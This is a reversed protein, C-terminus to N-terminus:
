AKTTANKSKSWDSYYKTGSITTYTRIRVYYKKSGKLGTVKKSTNKYGSVTVTKKNKTFKSNTALQIQYGTIRKKSMKAAQKTWKVTIAKSAATLTGLKTGKPNIKFSVNKTGVYNGTMKVTVKYKGVNKRGKAYTVTYNAKDVATTGDKVTVTPKKAKGDYTYAKQSLTVKPTIKKPSITFTKEVTGTYEGKGKIIVTAEGANINNKYSLTYDTGSKLTVEGNKVTPKPKIASGTYTKATVDGVMEETIRTKPQTGEPYTYRYRIYKGSNESIEAKTGNVYIEVDDSIEYGDLKTLEGCYSYLYMGKEITSWYNNWESDETEKYEFQNVWYSYNEAKMGDRQEDGCWTKVKIGSPLHAPDGVVMEPLTVEVKSVSPIEQYDYIVFDENEMSCLWCSWGYYTADLSAHIKYKGYPLGFKYFLSRLNCTPDDSSDSWGTTVENGDMDYVIVYTDFYNIGPTECTVDTNFILTDGNLEPTETTRTFPGHGAESWVVDSPSYGAKTAQVTFYYNEDTYTMRGIFEKWETSGDTIVRDYYEVHYPNGASDEEYYKVVYKVGEVGPIPDWKATSGEWRLNTPNPLKGLDEGIAIFTFGNADAIIQATSGIIGKITVNVSGEFVNDDIACEPNDIQVTLPNDGRYGFASYLIKEVNEPIIVERLNLNTMSIGGIAIVSSPVTFTEGPKANPYKHLRSGLYEPENGNYDYIKEYLVGDISEYYESEPDVYISELDSNDIFGGTNIYSVSKPFSISSALLTSRQYSISEVGEEIIVEGFTCWDTAYDVLYLGEGRLVLRDLTTMEIANASIKIVGDPIAYETQGPKKVFKYLITGDKSFLSGDIAKYYESDAAVTFGDGEMECDEFARSGISEQLLSAPLSVTQIKNDQFVYDGIGVIGEQVVINKLKVNNYFPSGYYVNNVSAYADEKTPILTLTGTAEDFTYDVGDCLTGAAPIKPQFIAYYSDDGMVTVTTVPDTSIVEGDYSGIRWELFESDDAPKAYLTLEKGQEITQSTSYNYDVGDFSVKDDYHGSVTNYARAYIYMTPGYGAIQEISVLYRDHGDEDTYWSVFVDDSYNIEFEQDSNPLYNDEDIVVDFMIYYPEGFELQQDSANLNAGDGTDDSIGSWEDLDVYWGTTGDYNENTPCSLAKLYKEYAEEGTMFMNLEPLIGRDYTISITSPANTKPEIRAHYWGDDDKNVKARYDCGNLMNRLEYIPNFVCNEDSGKIDATIVADNAMNISDLNSFLRANTGSGEGQYHIERSSTAFVHPAEIGYAYGETSKCDINLSVQDGVFVSYEDSKLGYVTDESTMKVNITADGQLFVTDHRSYIGYSNVDNAGAEVTLTGGVDSYIALEDQIYIGFQGKGGIYNDGILNIALRGRQTRIDVGCGHYNKYTLIGRSADYCANWDVSGDSTAETAGNVYYPKEDDLYVSSGYGESDIYGVTVGPLPDGTDAYAMSIGGLNPVFTIVMMVMLLMLLTRKIATTM